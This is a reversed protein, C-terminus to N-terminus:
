KGFDQVWYGKVYGVGIRTCLPSLINNRHSRSHMWDEMVQQPTRQGVAINEARPAKDFRQIREFTRETRILKGNKRDYSDHKLYRDKAMDAAHYRAARALNADWVLPPRKKKAREQNVLKFVEREVASQAPLPNAFLICLGVIPLFLLLNRLKSYSM